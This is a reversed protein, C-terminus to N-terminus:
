LASVVIAAKSQSQPLTLRQEIDLQRLKARFPAGRFETGRDSRVAKVRYTSLANVHEVFM